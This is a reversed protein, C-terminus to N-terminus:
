TANVMWLKTQMDGFRGGQICYAGVHNEVSISADDSDQQIKVPKPRGLVMSAEDSKRGPLGAGRRLNWSFSGSLPGWFNLGDPLHL